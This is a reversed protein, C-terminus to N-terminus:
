RAYRVEPLAELQERTMDVVAHEPYGRFEDRTAVGTGPAATTGNAPRDMTTAPRDATTGTAAPRDAGAGPATAGMGPATTGPATTGVAPDRRQDVWQVQDFPVAALHEGIGLFGGVGIVVAEVRGERDIILENIDGIRENQPNYVALGTLRTARWHGPQMEFMAGPTGAQQQTMPPQQQATGPQQQATGPQQQATGPQQQMERQEQARPQEQNTAPPTTAPATTQAMAPLAILAAGVVAVAFNTKMRSEQKASFVKGVFFPARDSQNL